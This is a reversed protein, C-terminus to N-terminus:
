VLNQLVSTYAAAVPQGNPSNPPQRPAILDRFAAPWFDGAVYGPGTGDTLRVGMGWIASVMQMRPDLDVMKGASRGLANGVRLGLASDKTKFTIRPGALYSM